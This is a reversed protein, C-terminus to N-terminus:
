TAARQNKIYLLQLLKVASVAKVNTLTFPCFNFYFRELYLTKWPRSEFQPLILYIKDVLIIFIEYLDQDTELTSNTAKNVARIMITVERQLM